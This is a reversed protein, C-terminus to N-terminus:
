TAIDIKRQRAAEFLVVTTAMAANLSEARGQMPISATVTALRRAAESLGRGENGVIIVSPKRWDLDYYATGGSMETAVVQQEAKLMASIDDWSADPYLPLRFHAGMAARVVKPSYVDVSDPSLYVATAGAAEASRLITGLNGPDQLGDAIVILPVADPLTAIQPYAFSAVIGQPTVTDALDRLAKDDVERLLPRGSQHLREIDALLQLGRETRGLLENNYLVINPILGASLGDEILRVGEAVFQRREQRLKRDRLLGRVIKIQENDRSTIM